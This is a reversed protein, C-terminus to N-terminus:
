VNILLFLINIFNINWNQFQTIKKVIHDDVEHVLIFQLCLTILYNQFYLHIKFKRFRRVYHIVRNGSTFLRATLTSLM